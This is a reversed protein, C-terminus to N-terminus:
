RLERDYALQTLREADREAALAELYPRMAEGLRDKLQSERLRHGATADQRWELALRRRTLNLKAEAATLSKRVSDRVNTRWALESTVKELEKRVAPAEDGAAALEEVQAQLQDRRAETDAARQNAADLVAKLKEVQKDEHTAAVAALFNARDAEVREAVAAGVADRHAGDTEGYLRLTTVYESGRPGTTKDAVEVVLGPPPGATPKLHKLCERNDPQWETQPAAEALQNRTAPGTLPAAANRAYDSEAKELVEVSM